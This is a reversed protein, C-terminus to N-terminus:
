CRSFTVAITEGLLPTSDLFDRAVAAFTATAFEVLACSPSRRTIKVREV